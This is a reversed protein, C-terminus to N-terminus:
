FNIQLGLEFFNSGYKVRTVRDLSFFWFTYAVFLQVPGKSPTDYQIRFHYDWFRRLSILEETTSGAFERNVVFSLLPISGSVQIRHEKPFSHVWLASLGLSAFADGSDIELGNSRYQFTRTYGGIKAYPGLYVPTSPVRFGLRYDLSGFIGALGNNNFNNSLDPSSFYLHISSATQEKLKTFFAHASLAGGSYNLNSGIEDNVLFTQLGLGIGISKEPDHDTQAFAYYGQLLLILLASWKLIKM